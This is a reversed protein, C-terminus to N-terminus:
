ELQVLDIEELTKLKWHARSYASDELRGPPPVSVVRMGAALAAEVGAISDEFAVCSDPDVSMRRAATLYVAPDPKGREEDVASCLVEFTGVLGLRRIAADILEPSSSSALGLRWGSSRLADLTQEVGPLAEGRQEILERVRDMVRAATQGLDADPWPHRHYWYAVVEDVRLGMTQECMAETLPVGLAGFVEIEALRWLPESDILLGDLDFIATRDESREADRM